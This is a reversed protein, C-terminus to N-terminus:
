RCAVETHGAKRRVASVFANFLKQMATQKYPCVQPDDMIHAVMAVDVEFALPRGDAGSLPQIPGKNHISSVISCAPSGTAPM